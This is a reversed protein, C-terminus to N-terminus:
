RLTKLYAVVDEVEQETLAPRGKRREDVRTLGEVKYYPPMTSAPNLRRSDIVRLRLQAESRRTGLQALPPGVNGGGAVGPMAHCIACNGREPDLAATRGRAPDPPAQTLPLPVGDGVVRYAM